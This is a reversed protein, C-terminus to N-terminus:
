CIISQNIIFIPCPSSPLVVNLFRHSIHLAERTVWQAHDRSPLGLNFHQASRFDSATLNRMLLACGRNIFQRDAHVCTCSVCTCSHNDQAGPLHNESPAPMCGTMGACAAALAPQAMAAIGFCLTIILINLTTRAMGSEIFETLARTKLFM